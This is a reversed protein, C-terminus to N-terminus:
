QARTFIHVSNVYVCVCLCIYKYLIYRAWVSTKDYLMVRYYLAFDNVIYKNVVAYEPVRACLCERPRRSIEPTTDDRARAAWEHRCSSPM